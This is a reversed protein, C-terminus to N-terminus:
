RAITLATEAFELSEAFRAGLMRIQAYGAVVRARAASPPDSPMLRMAERYGANALEGQGAIWAYRGLREHLLARRVPDGTEGVLAIAEQVYVVARAPEAFRAASAIAALLEVRDGGARAEADPVRDWLELAREYQAVAEPFAYGAEAALGAAVASELARALDHAAFWHFALEAAVSPDGGHRSELSRAFASHLRTREGPLLDDYVAEQLLAHRFAYRETGATPDPVLVQRGVAERLADYVAGDDLGAAAALLSPDVRQGAASAVRLFEQTPERLGAVRALLVDRLTPPLESRGDEGAAVLLEEAFFANGGSRAHISEILAPDLAHGAIAELQAASDRREFPALELREVGGLRELEAIFPLLPHRRHLEDSRYTLVLGIPAERLNRVLFALLDRTSRDSWHLDEVIVAVPSREALRMLVGLVLEFLRGQASDIALATTVAAEAPGLDPILRALEGRAPGVIAEVDAPDTRRVFRRLAEVIPAYPLSGDGLDVCGGLLVRGGAAEVAAAVDEVLRTKGVGAEGAVLFTRSVGATPTGLAARLRELESSRGILIPSSVRGAMGAIIPGVALDTM